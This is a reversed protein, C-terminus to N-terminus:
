SSSSPEPSIWYSILPIKQDLKVTKVVESKSPVKPQSYILDSYSFVACAWGFLFVSLYIGILRLSIQVSVAERNLKKFGM